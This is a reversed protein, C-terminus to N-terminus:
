KLIFQFAINACLMVIVFVTQFVPVARNKLPDKCTLLCQGIQAVPKLIISKFRYGIFILAGTMLNQTVFFLVFKEVGSIVSIDRIWGPVLFLLYLVFLLRWLTNMSLAMVAKVFPSKRKSHYRNAILVVSAMSLAEFVISIAPNIVKDIRGPLLLNLMKISACFLGVWFISSVRKTIQYISTMIFCSFPYWILWSYGFSISHLFYGATSEFLGWLAGWFVINLVM